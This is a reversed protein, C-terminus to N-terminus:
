EEAADLSITARRAKRAALWAKIESLVWGVRNEGLPVRRPFKGARELRGIHQGSYPVMVLLQRKTIIIDDDSILQAGSAGSRDHTTLNM